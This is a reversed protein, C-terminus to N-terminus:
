KKLSMLFGLKNGGNYGAWEFEFEAEKFFNHKFSITNKKADVNVQILSVQRAVNTLSNKIEKSANLIKYISQGLPSIVLRVKDNGFKVGDTLKTKLVNWFPTLKEILEENTKDSVYNKVSELNISKYDVNMIEALKKIAETEMYKHLEIMQEKMTYNKVINFVALSSEDSHDMHATKARNKIADIINQITVKGGGGSKVSIPYKVGLRIGYFDVMRENSVIPFFVEKFPLNKMVWIASMIEGFDASIKAFDNPSFTLTKDLRIKERKKNSEKLLYILQDSIEKDYKSELALTVKEIIQSYNVTMGALGLNDPTLDKNNFLKSGTKTHGIYNNVWPISTGVPINDIKRTTVIAKTEFKSSISVDHDIVKMGHKKFLANADGDYQFRIHYDGRSPQTFKVSPGLITKIKSKLAVVDSKETLFERFSIKM